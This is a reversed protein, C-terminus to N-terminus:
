KFNELYFEKNKVNLFEAIGIQLEFNMETLNQISFNSSLNVNKKSGMVSYDIKVKMLFDFNKFMIKEEELNLDFILNQDLFSFKIVKRNSARKKIENNELSVKKFLSSHM